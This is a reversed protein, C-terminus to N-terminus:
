DVAVVEVAPWANQGDYRDSDEQRQRNGHIDTARVNVKFRGEQRFTMRARWFVWVNDADLSETIEAERWTKGGDATVEVSAIRTGGFAAGGLELPQDVEAEVGDDPFFIVADVAMPPSCDWGRDEWYDKVPRDIVEIETVWAPQKVGYFGPNLIRLPFGHDPPIAVGNMFLAGIVGNDRIQELTHSAHYGDAGRYIVGTAADSPELSVLLDHLRFGKWIATSFLPGGPPNGICEVTLPVEVLPLGRLEDLTYTRPEAVLGKISLSYDGEAIQPVEGIHTIFYKENPTIFDPYPGERRVRPSCCALVAVIAPVLGLLSFRLWRMAGVVERPYM